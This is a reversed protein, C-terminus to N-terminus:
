TPLRQGPFGPAEDTETFVTIEFGTPTAGVGRGLREEIGIPSGVTV